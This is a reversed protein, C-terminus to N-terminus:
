LLSCRWRHTLQHPQTIGVSGEWKDGTSDRKMEQTIGRIGMWHHQVRFSLNCEVGGGKSAHPHMFRAIHKHVRTFAIYGENATTAAAYGENATAASYHM